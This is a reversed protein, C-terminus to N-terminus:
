TGFIGGKELRVTFLNRPIALEHILQPVIIVDGRKKSWGPHYTKSSKFKQM